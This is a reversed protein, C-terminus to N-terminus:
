RVRRQRAMRAYDDSDSRSRSYWLAEYGNLERLGPEIYRTVPVRTGNPAIGGIPVKRDVRITVGGLADIIEKFGDLNVLVYYDVPVGLTASVAQKVAEAGPNRAGPLLDKHNVAYMYIANLLCENGCDFGDPFRKALASDEPFPVNQLNRPLSFMVTRGTKTDVSALNVSDTRVGIRDAGADGGLLLINLRDPLKRPGATETFVSTILGRQAQAYRATFVLPLAVAVCLALVVVGAIRRRMRDLRAPGGLFAGSIIVLCWAVAVGVAGYQLLTLAGPRVALELLLRKSLLAAVLLVGGFALLCLYAKFIMRGARERGVLLHGLGPIITSVAALTLVRRLVKNPDTVTDARAPLSLADRPPQAPSQPPTTSGASSGDAGGGRGRAPVTDAAPSGPTGVPGRRTRRTMSSPRSAAMGPGGPRGRDTPGGTPRTPLRSVRIVSNVCTVGTVDGRRHDRNATNPELSWFRLEGPLGTSGASKRKRSAASTRTRRPRCPRYRARSAMPMWPSSCSIPPRWESPRYAQGTGRNPCSVFVSRWRPEAPGTSRRM